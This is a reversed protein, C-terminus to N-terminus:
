LPVSWNLRPIVEQQSVSSIAESLTSIFQSYESSLLLSKAEEDETSTDLIISDLDLLDSIVKPLIISISKFCKGRFLPRWHHDQCWQDSVTLDTM